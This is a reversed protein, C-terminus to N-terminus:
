QPLSSRGRLNLPELQDVPWKKMGGKNRYALYISSRPSIGEQGPSRSHSPCAFINPCITHLQYVASATHACPAAAPANVRRFFSRKMHTHDRRSCEWEATSNRAASRAERVQNVYGKGDESGLAYRCLLPSTLYGGGRTLCRWRSHPSTLSYSHNSQNYEIGM